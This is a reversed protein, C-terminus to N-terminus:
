QLNRVVRFGCNSSSSSPANSSRGAIRYRNCYSQECLFSGGRMSRRGTVKVFAPDIGATQQHYAPSFWDSCWEWVNGVCNYLGYGNPSFSAAAVTGPRWPPNPLSPFEGQWINCQGDGQHALEDGWPYTCGDLGGRAAYEWEAETPLRVNAWHCYAAADNWSVHVVPHDLRDLMSSGPGEPRQWCAMEVTLWWPLDRVVQRTARRLAEDVQLFFVFSSGIQEAETIYHTARVFERFQANTVTTPAVEFGRVQVRRAPGEGDAAFGAPSDTGMLFDGAPLAILGSPASESPTGRVPEASRLPLERQPICCPKAQSVENVSGFSTWPTNM